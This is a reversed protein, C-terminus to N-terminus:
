IVKKDINFSGNERSINLSNDQNNNLSSVEQEYNDNQNDINM